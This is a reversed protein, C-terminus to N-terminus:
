ETEETAQEDGTDTAPKDKPETASLATADPETTDDNEGLVEEDDTPQPIMLTEYAWRAPVRMKLKNKAVDLLEGISKTDEGREVNTVYSPALHGWQPGFSAVTWHYLLGETVCDDFQAALAGIVEDQDDGQREGISSDGGGSTIESTLTGTVVAKSVETNCMEILCKHPTSEGSGSSGANSGGNGALDLKGTDPIVAGPQTGRGIKKVLEEFLPLDNDADASDRGTKYAVIPFPKGFRETFSLFDRTAFRKFAMWWCLIQGLGQRPQYDDDLTPEFLLIRGPWDDAYVDGKRFVGMAGIYNGSSASTYSSGGDTIYPRWPNASTDYNIRRSHIFRVAQVRLGQPTLAWQFERGSSGYFWGWLLGAVHKKWRPIAAVMKRAEEAIIRAQETEREDTTEAAEIGWPKNAVNTFLKRLVGNAHGDAKVLESLLDVYKTRWGYEAQHVHNGVIAVTLAAGWHGPYLDFNARALIEKPVTITGM